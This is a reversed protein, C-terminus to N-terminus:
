PSLPLFKARDTRILEVLSNITQEQLHEHVHGIGEKELRAKLNAREALLIIEPDLTPEVGGEQFYKRAMAETWFSMRDLDIELDDAPRTLSTLQTPPANPKM